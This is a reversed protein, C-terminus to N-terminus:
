DFLGSAIGGKDKAKAVARPKYKDPRPENPNDARYAAMLAKSPLMAEAGGDKRPRGCPRRKAFEPLNDAILLEMILRMGQRVSANSSRFYDEVKQSHLVTLDTTTM